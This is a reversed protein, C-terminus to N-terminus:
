LANAQGAEALANAAVSTLGFRNLYFRCSAADGLKGVPDATFGLLREM